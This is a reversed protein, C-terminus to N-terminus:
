TSIILPGFFACIELIDLPTVRLDKKTVGNLENEKFITKYNEGFHNGIWTPIKLKKTKITKINAVSMGFDFSSFGRM